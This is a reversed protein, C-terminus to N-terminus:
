LLCVPVVRCSSIHHSIKSVMRLPEKTNESSETMQVPNKAGYEVGPTTSPHGTSERAESITSLSVPPAASYTRRRSFQHCLMAEQDVKEALYEYQCSRVECKWDDDDDDPMSNVHLRCYHLLLYEMSDQTLNDDELNQKVYVDLSGHDDFEPPIDLKYRKLKQLHDGLKGSFNPVGRIGLAALADCVFHQCNCTFLHYKEKRNYHVIVDVLNTILQQKKEATAIVLKIKDEISQQRDALSYHKNVKSASLAWEGQQHVHAVFDEEVIEEWQPDILGERGWEIRMNGVILGAHLAGYELFLGLFKRTISSQFAFNQLRSLFLKVPLHCVLAIGHKARQHAAKVEGDHAFEIRHDSLAAEIEEDVPQLLHSFKMLVKEHNTLEEALKTQEEESRESYPWHRKVKKTVEHLDKQTAMSACM